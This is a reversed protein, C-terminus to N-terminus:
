MLDYLNSFLVAVQLLNKQSSFISSIEYVFCVSINIYFEHVNLVMGDIPSM